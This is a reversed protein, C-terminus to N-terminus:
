PRRKGTGARPRVPRVARLPRAAGDASARAARAIAEFAATGGAPLDHSEAVREAARMLRREGARMHDHGCLHLLGHTVLRLLERGESHRYRRAQAALRDASVVLEGALARPAGLNGGTDEYTFSLVDTARDIGRWRRNLARLFADGAFVLTVDQRRVGERRLVARAYAAFRARAAAPVALPRAAGDDAGAKALSIPM